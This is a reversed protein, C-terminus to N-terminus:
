VTKTAANLDDVLPRVTTFTQTIDALADTRQILAMSLAHNACFGKRRLYEIAPDHPDYGKPAIKLTEPSTLGHPFTHTMAPTEVVALWRDYRQQISQRIRDLEGPQPTFSGGGAYVNDREIHLYYGAIATPAAKFMLFFDTKYKSRGDKAFRMDRHIRSITARPDPNARAFTRDTAGVEAIVAEATDALNQLVANYRARHADFWEKTDHAGLDDLYEFTSAHIM